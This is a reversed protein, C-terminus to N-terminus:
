SLYLDSDNSYLTLLMCFVYAQIFAVGIELITLIRQVLTLIIVIFISKREILNGILTLLLHGSVINAILRIRLTLSRIVNRILEIIVIFRILPIPTGNPVLHAFIKNTHNTWGFLIFGIWLPFSIIINISIHRTPTFINPFLGIFNVILIIFFLSVFITRRRDKKTKLAIKFQKEIEKSLNLTIINIRTPKKWLTAFIIIRTFSLIIWNLENFINTKPDFSIFLGLFFQDIKIKKRKKEKKRSNKWILERNLIISIIRFILITLILRVSIPLIQPILDLYM